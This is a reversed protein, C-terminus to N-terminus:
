TFTKYLELSKYRRQTTALLYRESIDSLEKLGSNSLKFSFIKQPDSLCIHRMATVVGITLPICHVPAKCSSCYLQASETDFFMTEDAFKGCSNCAVIGPMYGSLSLMRLEFVAKIQRVPLKNNSLMYLTNLTLSLLEASDTEEPALECILECFYMALSTRSFDSRVGFFVEIPEAEDITYVDRSMFISLKSYGLLQTASLSRSKISRAGRVFARIVGMDRTLVTVLRDAEGTQQERIILGQTNLRM